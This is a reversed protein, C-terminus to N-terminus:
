SCNHEREHVHLKELADLLHQAMRKVESVASTESGADNQKIRAQLHHAASYVDADM